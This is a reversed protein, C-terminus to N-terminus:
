DELNLTQVEFLPAMMDAIESDGEDSSHTREEGRRQASEPSRHASMARWKPDRSWPSAENVFLIHVKNASDTM